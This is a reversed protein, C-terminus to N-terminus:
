NSLPRKGPWAGLDSGTKVRKSLLPYPVPVPSLPGKCFAVTEEGTSVRHRVLSYGNSLRAALKPDKVKNIGSPRLMATAQTGILQLQRSFDLSLPPLCQYQWSYLSILSVYNTSSNVKVNERVGDLSVLHVVVTKETTLLPGTRHSVIISYLGNEDGYMGISGGSTNINRVHALYKYRELNITAGDADLDHLARFLNPKIFIAKTTKDLTDSSENPNIPIAVNNLSLLQQVTMPIEKTPSQKFTGNQLISDDVNLEEPDFVLVALWPIDNLNDKSDVSEGIDREWPLHPDNLVVHPLIHPDDAHGNPPYVSHVENAELSFRPGQVTFTQKILNGGLDTNQIPDTTKGPVTIVQKVDITYTGEKLSPEYTSFLRIDGPKSLIPQGNEDHTPRPSQKRIFSPQLRQRRM